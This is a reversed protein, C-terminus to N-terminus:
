EKLSIYSIDDVVDFAVILRSIPSKPRCKDDDDIICYQLLPRQLKQGRSAIHCMGSAIKAM